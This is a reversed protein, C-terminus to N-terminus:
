QPERNGRLFDFIWGVHLITPRDSLTRSIIMVFTCALLMGLIVCLTTWFLNSIHVGFYSSHHIWNGVVHSVSSEKQDRFIFTQPSFIFIPQAKCHWVSCITLSILKIIEKKCNLLFHIFRRSWGLFPFYIIIMSVRPKLFSLKISRPHHPWYWLNMHFYGSKASSKIM